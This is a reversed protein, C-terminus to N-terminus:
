DGSVYGVRLPKGNLSLKHHKRGSGVQRQGEHFRRRQIVLEKPTVPTLTQVFCANMGAVYHKPDEDLVANYLPVAQEPNGALPCALALTMRTQVCSHVEVAAEAKEVALDVQELDLAILAWNCLAVAYNKQIDEIEEQYTWPPQSLQVAREVALMAEKHNQGSAYACALNNYARVSHPDLKLAHRLQREADPYRGLQHSEIAVAIWESVLATPDIPALLIFPQPQAM